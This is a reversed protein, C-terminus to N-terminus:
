AAKKKAVLTMDLKLDLTHKPDKNEKDLLPSYARVHITNEAPVFRLTRLWGNGGNPLGQYDTLMQHVTRGADNKDTRLGVGLIHGSVVLFINPQKRVLKQWMAEGSNGDKLRYDRNSSTDRRKGTKMYCHTAVIVHHDPHKAAVKGAWQLAADSPSFELSIVLFKMGGGEFRCYNNDNTKGMHGGYWSRDKFRSPPFYKNYRTSDRTMQRGKFVYDHNGPVMTYPVVGDLLKHAKDAAEWEKVTNNHVIDGLHIAIKINDDKVRSAIWRLQAEYRQPYKLSYLQTDPVLVVTFPKTDRTEEARAFQTALLVVLLTYTLRNPM